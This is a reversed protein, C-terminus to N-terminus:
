ILRRGGAHLLLSGADTQRQPFASFPDFRYEIRGVGIAVRMGYGLVDRQKDFDAVRRSEAGLEAEGLKELASMRREAVDRETAATVRAYGRQWTKKM